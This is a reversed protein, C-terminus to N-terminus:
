ARIVAGGERGDEDRGLAPGRTIGAIGQEDIAEISRREVEHGMAVATDHREDHALQHHEPAFGQPGDTAQFRGLALQDVVHIQARADRAGAIAIRDRGM